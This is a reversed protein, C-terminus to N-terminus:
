EHGLIWTASNQNINIEEFQAGQLNFNCVKKHM